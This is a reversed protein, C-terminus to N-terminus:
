NNNKSFKNTNQKKSKQVVADLKKKYNSYNLDQTISKM